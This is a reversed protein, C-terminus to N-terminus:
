SRMLGLFLRRARLEYETIKGVEGSSFLARTIIAQAQEGRLVFEVQDGPKPMIPQMAFLGSILENALATVARWAAPEDILEQTTQWATELYIKPDAGSSNHEIMAFGDLDRWDYASSHKTQQPWANEARCKWEAAPGACGIITHPLKLGFPFIFDADTPPCFPIEQRPADRFSPLFWHGGLLGAAYKEGGAGSARDKAHAARGEDGDIEM